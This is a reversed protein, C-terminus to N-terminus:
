CCNSLSEVLSVAEEGIAKVLEKRADRAQDKLETILKKFGGVNRGSLGERISYGIATDHDTQSLIKYLRQYKENNTEKGQISYGMNDPLSNRHDTNNGYLSQNQKMTVTRKLIGGKGVEWRYIEDGCPSFHAVIMFLVTSLITLAVPLLIWIPPM